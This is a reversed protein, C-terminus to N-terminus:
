RREGAPCWWTSWLNTAPGTAPPQAPGQATVTAEGAPWRILVRGSAGPGSWGAWGIAAVAEQGPDVDAYPPMRLELTIVTQAGLPEGAADLPILEPKGSLRIRRQSVNRLRLEGVLRGEADARWVLAIRVEEPAAEAIEDDVGRLM